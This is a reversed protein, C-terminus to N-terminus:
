RLSRIIIAPAWTKLAFLISPASFHAAKGAEVKEKM